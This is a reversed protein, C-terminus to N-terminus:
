QAVPTPTLIRRVEAGVATGADNWPLIENLRLVRHHLAELGEDLLRLADRAIAEAPQDVEEPYLEEGTIINPLAIYPSAVGAARLATLPKIHFTYGEWRQLPSGHYTVVGPCGLVAAELSATGSCVIGFRAQAMVRRANMETRVDPRLAVVQRRVAESACCVVPELEPYRERIMAAAALQVPLGYRIELARSGPLIALVPPREAWPLATAEERCIELGAHAALVVRGGAESYLRAQHPFPTIMSAFRAAAAAHVRTPGIFNPGPPLYCIKPVSVLHPGFRQLERLPQWVDVAVICAPLPNRTRFATGVVTAFIRPLVPILGTVGMASINDARGVLRVGAAELLSGGIGVLPRQGAAARIGPVLRAGLRDGAHGQTLILIPGDAGTTTM